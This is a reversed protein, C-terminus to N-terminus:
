ECPFPCIIQATDVKQGRSWKVTDPTTPPMPYNRSRPSHVGASYGRHDVRWRSLYSVQRSINWLVFEQDRRRKRRGKPAVETCGRYGPLDELRMIPSYYGKRLTSNNLTKRTVMSSNLKGRNVVVVLACQPPDRWKDPM